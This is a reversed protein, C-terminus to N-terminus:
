RETAVGTLGAVVYTQVVIFAAVPPPAVLASVAMVDNRRTGFASNTGAQELEAREARV